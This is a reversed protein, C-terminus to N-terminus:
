ASLAGANLIGMAISFAGLVIGYAVNDEEIGQRLRPILFSVALFALLQGALGIAGWVALELVIFTGSATSHLVTAMGAATGGLSYAAARNGNRILSIEKYPTLMVYIALAAILLVVTTGLFALYLPLTTLM